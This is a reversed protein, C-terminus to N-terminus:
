KYHLCHELGDYFYIVDNIGCDIMTTDFTGVWQFM